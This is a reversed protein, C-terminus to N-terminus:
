NFLEDYSYVRELTMGKYMTNPTFPPLCIYGRVKINKTKKNKIIYYDIKLYEIDTFSTSFKKTIFLEIGQRRYPALFNKLYEKEVNDLVEEKLLDAINGYRPLEAIKDDVFSAGFDVIPSDFTTVKFHRDLVKPRDKTAILFTKYKRGIDSLYTSKFYYKYGRKMLFTLVEKENDTLKM